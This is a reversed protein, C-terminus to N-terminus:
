YQGKMGEMCGQWIHLRKTANVPEFTRQTISWVATQDTRSANLRCLFIHKELVTLVFQSAKLNRHRGGISTQRPHIIYLTYHSKSQERTSAYHVLVVTVYKCFCLRVTFTHVILNLVRVVLPNKDWQEIESEKWRLCKNQRKEVIKETATGEKWKIFCKKDSNKECNASAIVGSVNQLFLARM